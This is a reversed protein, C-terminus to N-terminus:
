RGLNLSNVDIISQYYRARQPLNKKNLTQIEVDFIRNDDKTYVDFRVGKSSISEQMSKEATTAELHDIKIHLLIEILHKCLDPNSEMVKCFIFNNSLTLNEWTELSNRTINEM